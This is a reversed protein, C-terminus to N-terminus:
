GLLESMDRASHIVRIVEIGDPLSFYLILYKKFVYQRIGLMYENKLVGISPSQALEVMIQDLAEIFREANEPSEKEIAIYHWIQYLDENAQKSKNVVAM